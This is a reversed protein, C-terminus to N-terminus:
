KLNSPFSSVSSLQNILIIIRSVNQAIEKIILKYVIKLSQKKANAKNM